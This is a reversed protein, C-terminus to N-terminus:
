QVKCKKILKKIGLEDGNDITIAEPILRFDFKKDKIIDGDINCILEKESEVILEDSWFRKVHKSKEHTGRCLKLFLGPIQYTKLSEVEYIDFIGDRINADPAMKFGNGYYRGNCVALLTVANKSGFFKVMPDQRKSLTYLISADYVMKNPINKEKMLSVNNAIEADLGLSAINIFYQRNVIGLDVKQIIPPLTELTKNFDNGSGAPIVNLTNNTDVIGSVIERLTGDGGVSYIANDEGLSRVIQEAESPKSTYYMEYDINKEFCYEHIIKSIKLAKGQGAIPNVIFINKLEM